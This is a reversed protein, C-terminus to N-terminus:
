PVRALGRAHDVVILVEAVRLLALQDREDVGESTTCPAPWGGAPGRRERSSLMALRRLARTVVKARAPSARAAPMTNEGVSARLGPASRPGGGEGAAISCRRGATTSGSKLWALGPSTRAVRARAKPPATSGTRSSASTPSKLPSPEGSR